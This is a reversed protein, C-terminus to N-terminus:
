TFLFLNLFNASYNAYATAAWGTVNRVNRKINNNNNHDNKYNLPPLGLLHHPTMFFIKVTISEYYWTYTRTKNDNCCIYTKKICKKHSSKAYILM